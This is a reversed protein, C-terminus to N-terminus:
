IMAVAATLLIVPLCAWGVDRWTREQVGKPIFGLWVGFLQQCTHLERGAFLMAGGFGGGAWLMPHLYHTRFALTAVLVFLLQLGVAGLAHQWGPAIAQDVKNM